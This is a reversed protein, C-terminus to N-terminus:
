KPSGNKLFWTIAYEENLIIGCKKTWNERVIKGKLDNKGIGWFSNGKWPLRSEKAYRYGQQQQPARINLLKQNKFKFM